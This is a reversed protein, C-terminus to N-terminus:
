LNPPIGNMIFFNYFSKGFRIGPKEIAYHLLLSLIPLLSLILIASPYKGINLIDKLPKWYDLPIPHALYITYAFLSISTIVNSFRNKIYLGYRLGIFIICGTLISVITSEIPWYKGNGIGFLAVATILIGICFVIGNPLLKNKIDARTQHNQPIYKNLLIATISGYLLNDMWFIMKFFSYNPLEFLDYFSLIKLGLSVAIFLLLIFFRKKDLKKIVFPILIYFWLEIQLTWLVGVGMDIWEDPMKVIFLLNLVNASFKEFITPELLYLLLFNLLLIAVYTPYIRFIRRTLFNPITVKSDLLNNTILFGSLCFFISVGVSGGPLINSKYHTIVVFTIAVARLLDLLEMRNGNESNSM